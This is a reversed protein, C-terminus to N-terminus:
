EDSEQKTNKKKCLQMKSVVNHEYVFYFSGGVFCSIALTFKTKTNM